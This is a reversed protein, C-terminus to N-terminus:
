DLRPPGGRVKDQLTRSRALQEPKPELGLARVMEMIPTQPDNSWFIGSDEAPDYRYGARAGFKEDFAKGEKLAAQWHLLVYELDIQEVFVGDERIERTVHGTPDILSANNRWTSTLVFYGQRLARAAPSIRGPWQSPWVVLEAGKRGLVEWGEDFAMDYCIQAGVRGFDCDFVPFDWGAMVGGELVEPGPGPVAYVKRYIGVVEGRRGVVVAANSYLGADRDEALMLPLVVHCAHERAKAGIGELVPGELAVSVEEAPGSLGGTVAYEPLAAIDLRAGAYQEAAQGAMQDILGGLEELRAELGPYEHFMNFMATGVLVKRPGGKVGM